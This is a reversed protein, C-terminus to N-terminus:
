LVTVTHEYMSVRGGITDPWWQLVVERGLTLLEDVTIPLTLSTHDVHSFSKTAVLGYRRARLQFSFAPDRHEVGALTYVLLDLVNFLALLLLVFRERPIVTNFIQPLLSTFLVASDLTFVHLPVRISTLRREVPM